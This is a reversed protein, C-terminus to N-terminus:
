HVALWNQRAKARADEDAYFRVLGCDACMVADMKPIRQFFAGKELGPLLEPGQGGTSSIGSKRYLAQSGCDPCTSKM